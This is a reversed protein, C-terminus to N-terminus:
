AKEKIHVDLQNYPVSIGNEEFIERINEVLDFYLSWYNETKCWVRTLLNVASEGYSHVRVFPEEPERLSFPHNKIVDEALQKAKKVDAEYSIPFVIDVRRNSERSYNIIHSNILIGNPIS